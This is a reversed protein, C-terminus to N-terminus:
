PRSGSEARAPPISGGPFRQFGCTPFYSKPVRRAGAGSGESTGGNGRASSPRTAASTARAPRFEVVEFAGRTDTAVGLREQQTGAGGTTIGLGSTRASTEPHRSRSRIAVKPKCVCGCPCRIGVLRTHAVTDVYDMLPIDALLLSGCRGCGSRLRTPPQTPPRLAVIRDFAQDDAPMLLLVDQKRRGYSRTPERRVPEFAPDDNSKRACQREPQPHRQSPTRAVPQMGEPAAAPWGGRGGGARIMWCPGRAFPVTLATRTGQSGNKHAKRDRQVAPPRHCPCIM